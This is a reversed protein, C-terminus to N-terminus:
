KRLWDKSVDSNKIERINRDVGASLRQGKERVLLVPEPQLSEIRSGADQGTKLDV